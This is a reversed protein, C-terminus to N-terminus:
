DRDSKLKEKQKLQSSKFNSSEYLSNNVLASRLEESEYREESKGSAPFVSVSV